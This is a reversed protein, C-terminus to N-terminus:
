FQGFNHKYKAFAFAFEFAFAFAFAIKCIRHQMYANAVDCICLPCLQYTLYKKAM